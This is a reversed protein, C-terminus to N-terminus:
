TRRRGDVNDRIMRTSKQQQVPKRRPLLNLVENPQVVRAQCDWGLVKRHRNNWFQTSTLVFGKGFTSEVVVDRVSVIPIIPSMNISVAETGDLKSADFGKTMRPFELRAQNGLDVQFELHTWDTEQEFSVEIEHQLGDFKQFLLSYTAVQNDIKITAGTVQEINNWVTLSDLAKFGKPLVAKFTVRKGWFKHPRKNVEILSDHTEKDAWQTSLIQRWGALLSFGGVYGRGFCIGCTTDGLVGQTGSDFDKFRDDLSNNPGNAGFDDLGNDAQSDTIITGFPYTPDRTVIDLPPEVFNPGKPGENILGEQFPPPLGLTERMNDPPAPQQRMLNVKFSMGTLLENQKAFPMKGEEDLATALAKDHAQCSCALGQKLANYVLCDYGEVLFANHYRRQEVPILDNIAQKAVDVSRQNAPLIRNNSKHVVPM